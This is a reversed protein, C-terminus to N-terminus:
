LTQPHDEVRDIRSISRERKRVPKWIKGYPCKLDSPILAVTAQKAIDVPVATGRLTSNEAAVTVLRQNLGGPIRLQPPNVGLSHVLGFQKGPALARYVKVDPILLDGVVRERGKWIGGPLFPGLYSVSAAFWQIPDHRQRDLVWEM